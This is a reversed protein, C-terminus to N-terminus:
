EAVAAAIWALIVQYDSDATTAFIGGEADGAHASGGATVALPKRLLASSAADAPDAQLRAQAFDFGLDKDGAPSLAFTGRIGGGHCEVADCGRAGLVPAVEADFRARDFVWTAGGGPPNPASPSAPRCGGAGLALALALTLDLTLPLATASGGARSDRHALHM